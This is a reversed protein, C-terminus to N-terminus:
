PSHGCRWRRVEGLLAGGGGARGSLAAAGGRRRGVRSGGRGESVCALPTVYESDISVPQRAGDCTRVIYHVIYHVIHPVISHVIYHVKSVPQRWRRM